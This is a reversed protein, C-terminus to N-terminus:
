KVIAMNASAPSSDAAMTLKKALLIVIHCSDQFDDAHVQVANVVQEGFSM